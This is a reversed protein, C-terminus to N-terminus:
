PAADSPGADLDSADAEVRPTGADLQEQPAQTSADPAASADQDPDAPLTDASYFALEDLWLEYDVGPTFQYEIVFLEDPVFEGVDLGWGAQDVDAFSVQFQTWQETLLINTGHSDFCGADDPCEGGFERSRVSPNQLAVRVNGRGRAWFTIGEYLSADYSCYENGTETWRLVVGVGSFDDFVDGIVQLVGNGAGETSDDNETGMLLQADPTGDDYAYWGGGRNDVALSELDRDDFDDIMMSEGVGVASDCVMIPNEENPGDQTEPEPESVDSEDISISPATGGFGGDFEGRPADVGLAGDTTAGAEAGANGNTSNVSADDDDGCAPVVTLATLLAGYRIKSEM